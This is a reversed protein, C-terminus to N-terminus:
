VFGLQKAKKELIHKCRNYHGKGFCTNEFVPEYSNIDAYLNLIRGETWKSEDCRRLSVHFGMRKTRLYSM